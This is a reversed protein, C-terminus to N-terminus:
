DRRQAMSPPGLGRLGIDRRLQKGSFAIRDCARYAGDRARALDEAHAGVALVRGGATVIEAGVRRTGAHFVAVSPDASAADLGTIEAGKPYSGPYGPAALVVVVASGARWQLQDPVLRGEACALLIEPLDSELLLMLAETEPDGFRCNYELVKPGKATLMLGAFLVGIFPYGEARMGALTPQLVEADIRRMLAEDVCPAPAYAGMGGTNPGKDGDYARKHDQAPPMPAAVWGDCFALISVEEGELREELLLTAGADGHVREVMLASVAALAEDTTDCVVVGKGAALGSAKVVVPGPNQRLWARASEADSVIAAAATPIHHRVMFQKSFAKSYELQAPALQPGFVRVGADILADALGAALPAEPGIVVLDIDLRLAASVIGTVDHAEIALNSARGDIGSPRPGGQTPDGLSTGANGPACYVQVVRPSQLLKWVLAHERGGSGVVLIQLHRGHTSQRISAHDM